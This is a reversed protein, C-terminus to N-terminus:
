GNVTVRLGALIQTVDDKDVSRVKINVMGNKVEWIRPETEPDHLGRVVLRSVALEKTQEIETYAFAEELTIPVGAENASLYQGEIGTEGKAIYFIEVDPRTHMGSHRIPM